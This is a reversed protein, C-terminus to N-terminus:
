ELVLDGPTSTRPRKLNLSYHSQDKFVKFFDGRKLFYIQVKDWIM